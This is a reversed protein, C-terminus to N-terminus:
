DLAHEIIKSIDVMTAKPGATFRSFGALCPDEFDLKYLVKGVLQKHITKRADGFDVHVFNGACDLIRFGLGRMRNLFIRQPM